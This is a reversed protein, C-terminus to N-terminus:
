AAASMGEEARARLSAHLARAEDLGEPPCDPDAGEAPPRILARCKNLFGPHRRLGLSDCLPGIDGTRGLRDHDVLDIGTERSLYAYACRWYGIWYALDDPDHRNVIEPMGEFLIPRHLPGFEFHGIDAMYRRAFADDALLKGFHMHQRHMSRAHALPDRLPVIIRAEPFAARLAPIRAINANNKSLYRAQAAKNGKRLHLVRRMHDSLSGAFGVPLTSWPVIGDDRYHDAFAALWLVEEFAEPSDVNVMMGDGHARERLTRDTQFGSSLNHWLVPARVFPMDRYTHSALSPHLSLLELLLTTGARPLATIFVPHSPDIAAWGRGFAMAEMEALVTQLAPAAFALRHLTRDLMSYTSVTM